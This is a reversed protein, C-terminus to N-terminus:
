EKSKETLASLVNDNTTVLKIYTSSIPESYGSKTRFRRTCHRQLFTNKSFYFGKAFYNKIM